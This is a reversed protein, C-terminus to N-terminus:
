TRFERCPRISRLGDIADDLHGLFGDYDTGHFLFHLVLACIKWPDRQYDIADGHVAGGRDFTCWVIHLNDFYFTPVFRRNEQASCVQEAYTGLHGFTLHIWDRGGKICNQMESPLALVGIQHTKLIPICYSSPALGKFSSTLVSHKTLIAIM